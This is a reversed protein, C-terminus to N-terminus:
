KGTILLALSLNVSYMKASTTSDIFSAVKCRVLNSKYKFDFIKSNFIELEHMLESLTLLDDSWDLQIPNFDENLIQISSAKEDLYARFFPHRKQIILLAQKVICETLENNRDENKVFAISMVIYDGCKNCNVFLKEYETLKSVVLM